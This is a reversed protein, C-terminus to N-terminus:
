SAPWRASFRSAWAAPRADASRARQRAVAIVGLAICLMLPSLLTSRGRPTRMTLRIQATAVASAGPSLLPLRWGANSRRGSVAPPRGFGPLALIRVFALFAAGHLFARPRWCLWGHPSRERGHAPAVAAQTAAIFHESPSAAFVQRPSVARGPEPAAVPAPPQGAAPAAVSRDFSSTLMGALPLLLIFALAILEGRRRDRLVIQVISSTLTSLGLLVIIFTVGAILAIQRRPSAAAPRWASRCASRSRCCCWRGPSPSRARRRPWISPRGRSRCCSCGCRTPATWARAAPDARRDVPRDRGAGPLPPGPLDARREAHDALAYGAYGSLVSM